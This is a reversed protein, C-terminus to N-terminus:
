FIYGMARAWTNYKQIWNDLPFVCLLCFMVAGAMVCIKVFPINVKQRLIVLVFVLAMWIMFVMTLVRNITLGYVNIYMGMKSMATAIILLTLISLCVSIIRLGPNKERETKSFFGACGLLIMNWAGIQCLEFFGRRAYESYIFGEPMVGLFASFLYDGQIAIFVLYVGCIVAIATIIATDPIKRLRNGTQIIADRNLQDTNRGSIGGYALGFLYSAVPIALLIRIFTLLLHECIYHLLNLIMNEFAADARSLLPLIIFLAPLAIALGILISIVPNEKKKNTEQNQKKTKGLLILFQCSFNSFPIAAISNWWDFFLWQSTKQNLLLKGSAALTWYAATFILVLIQFLGMVSWFRFPIGIALMVTLWFYSEATPKIGKAFLYSLVAAAYLVTYSGLYGRRLWFNESTFVFVFGYGVLFYLFSFLKDRNDAIIQKKERTENVWDPLFPANECPLSTQSGEQNTNNMKIRWEEM